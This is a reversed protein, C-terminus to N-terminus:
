RLPDSGAPSGPHCRLIRKAGQVTGRLIGYKAVAQYLYDSCCPTFRCINPGNLFSLYRQYFRISSLFLKRM